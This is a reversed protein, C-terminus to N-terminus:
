DPIGDLTGGRHFLVVPTDSSINFSLIESGSKVLQEMEIHIEENETEDRNSLIDLAFTLSDKSRIGKPRFIKRLTEIKIEKTKLEATEGVQILDPQKNLQIPMELGHIEVHIEETQNPANYMLYLEVKAFHNGGFNSKMKILLEYGRKNALNVITLPRYIKGIM